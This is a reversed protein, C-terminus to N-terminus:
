QNQPPLFRAPLVYPRLFEWLAPAGHGGVDVGDQISTTGPVLTRAAMVGPVAGVLLAAVLLAPPRLGLIRPKNM